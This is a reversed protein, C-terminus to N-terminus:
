HPAGFMEKIREVTPIEAANIRLTVIGASRLIDDRRSNKEEDQSSEHLEIGAVVTFDRLCVLFDITKQSIHAHLARHQPSALKGQPAPKLFHSFSVQALVVCEPLAEVLRWYLAQEPESLPRRQVYKLEQPGLDLRMLDRDAPQQQALFLAVAEVVSVVIFLVWFL